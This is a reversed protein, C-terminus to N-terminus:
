PEAGALTTCAQVLDLEGQQVRSELFDALEADAGRLYTVREMAADGEREGVVLFDNLRLLMGGYLGVTAAISFTALAVGAARRADDDLKQLLAIVSGGMFAFLLGLLMTTLEATSLGAVSGVLLGLSAFGVGLHVRSTM